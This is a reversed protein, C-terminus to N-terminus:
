WKWDTTDPPCVENLWRYYMPLAGYQYVSVIDTRCPYFFRITSGILQAYLLGKM